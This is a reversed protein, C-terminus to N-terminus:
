GDRGEGEMNAAMSRLEEATVSFRVGVSDLMAIAQSDLRGTAAMSAVATLLSPSAGCAAVLQLAELLELRKGQDPEVSALQVLASQEAEYRLLGHTNVLGSAFGATAYRWADLLADSPSHFVSGLPPRFGLAYVLRRIPRMVM